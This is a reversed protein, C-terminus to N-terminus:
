ARGCIRWARTELNSSFRINCVIHLAIQHIEGETRLGLSLYLEFIRVSRMKPLIITL